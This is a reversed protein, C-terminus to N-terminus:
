ERDSEGHSQQILVADGRNEPSADLVMGPSGGHLSLRQRAESLATTLDLTHTVAVNVRDGYSQPKSKAAVWQRAQIRIAARKPDEETDAIPVIQDAFYDARDERARSIAARLAEDDEMIRRFTMFPIGNAICADELPVGKSVAECIATEMADNRKEHRTVPRGIKAKKEVQAANMAKGM